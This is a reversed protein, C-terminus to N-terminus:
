PKYIIEIKRYLLQHIFGMNLHNTYGYGNFMNRVANKDQYFTPFRPFNNITIDIYEGKFSLNPYSHSGSVKNFPKSIEISYGFRKQNTKHLCVDGFKDSKSILTIDCITINSLDSLAPNRNEDKYLRIIFNHKM